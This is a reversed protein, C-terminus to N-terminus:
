CEHNVQHFQTTNGHPNFGIIGFIFLSKPRDHQDVVRILGRNRVLYNTTAQKRNSRPRKSKSKQVIYEGISGDKKVYRLAVWAEANPQAHATADIAALVEKRSVVAM